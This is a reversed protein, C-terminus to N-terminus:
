WSNYLGRRIFDLWSPCDILLLLNLFGLIDVMWRLGLVIRLLWRWIRAIVWITSKGQEFLLRMLSKDLSLIALRDFLLMVWSSTRTSLKWGMLPEEIHNRTRHSPMTHSAKHNELTDTDSKSDSVENSVIGKFEGLTNM